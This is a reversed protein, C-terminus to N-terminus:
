VQAQIGLADHGVASGGNGGAFALGIAIARVIAGAALTRRPWPFASEANTEAVIFHARSSGQLLGKTQAGGDSHQSKGQAGETLLELFALEVLQHRLL